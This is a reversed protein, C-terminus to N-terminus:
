HPKECPNRYFLEEVDNTTHEFELEASDSLRLWLLATMSELSAIEMTYNQM